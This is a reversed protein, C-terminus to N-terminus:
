EYGAINTYIDIHNVQDEVSCFMSNDGDIFAKIQNFIGPKFQKDIQDDIEVKQVKVSGKAMVHLEELPRM